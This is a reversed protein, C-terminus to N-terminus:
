GGSRASLTLAQRLWRVRWAVAFLVAVQHAMFSLVLSRASPQDLGLRTMWWICCLYAFASAAAVPYGGALVALPDERLCILASILAQKWTREARVLSARALDLVCGVWGCGILALVLLALPVGTALREDSSQLPSKLAASLLSALLLLGAQTASAIAGLGLFRPFLGIARRFRAALTTGEFVLLDLAMSLPLLQALAALASLLLATRLAVGFVPAGVRFMELLLVSGPRFLVADADPGSVLGSAEIAQLIPFVVLLGLVTRSIWLLVSATASAAWRDARQGSAPELAASM